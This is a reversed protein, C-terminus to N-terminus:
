NVTLKAVTWLNHVMLLPGGHDSWSNREKHWQIDNLGQILRINFHELSVTKEVNRFRILTQDDFQKPM